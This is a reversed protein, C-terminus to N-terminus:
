IFSDLLTHMVNIFKIIMNKLLVVLPQAINKNRDGHSFRRHSKPKIM